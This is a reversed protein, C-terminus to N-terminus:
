KGHTKDRQCHNLKTLFYFDMRATKTFDESLIFHAETTLSACDKLFSQSMLIQSDRGPIKNSLIDKVSSQQKVKM